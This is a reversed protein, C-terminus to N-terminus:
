YGEIHATVLEMAHDCGKAVVVTYGVRELEPIVRRQAENLSGGEKRKMEVWLGWEPIFLDPVGPTLGELKLKHATVKGRQGGNPISFMLVDPWTKRFLSVFNRHEVHESHCPKKGNTVAVTKLNQRRNM